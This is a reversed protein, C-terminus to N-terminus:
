LPPPEAPRGAGAIREALHSYREDKRAEALALAIARPDAVLVVLRKGRTVATYLLKTSLMVFHSTLLPIVVAPYESGQAKHVSCAYALTLHDLAAPEYAVLRAADGNGEADFRVVLSGAKADVSAVVGIDGNWIARDYDNKLQMVKDGVRFVRLGRTLPEGHPNLAAQLAVNVAHSGAAGRHMPTLVQIDRVPDMGFRKPIRSTVLETITETAREADTREIIFFDANPDNAPASVPTLGGHIRHANVVIRSEEAQRFIRRLMVCPAVESAILDRLVAGPGISPLQGVDGVFVLRTGPAVAQCLADALPLDIMSAEDVIVAGADIPNRADRKFSGGKQPDFELLRHLTTAEVSTAATMRKAARGTPAALRVPVNSQRFVALMAKLVTTKGVGPGGTVIFMPARSAEFVAARQEDALTVHAAAEFAAVAAQAGPLPRAKAASLERVREAMRREAAYMRPLYVIDDGGRGREVVVHESVSLAYLAEGLLTDIRDGAPEDQFGLLTRARRELVPAPSFVHGSENEDLLAQLLGAQMREPSDSAVGLERAIRDATKFGIGTVDLALRFPDKRVVEAAKAGYRKAIRAALAPSAGHAQLFVLVDREARREHWTAVLQDRRKKGLGTVEALREPEEDLVRLTAEGFAHVIRAALKEGVGAVVGSALYREIGKLTNPAIETVGESRLQEGHRADTEIRGRVRIQAGVHLPPLTGLVTLREARGKVTLKIIRFGNEANEFTVRAVEGEVFTEGNPGAAEATRTARLAPELSTQAAKPPFPARPTL